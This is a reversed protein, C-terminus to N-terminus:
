WTVICVCLFLAYVVFLIILFKQNLIKICLVISSIVFSNGTQLLNINQICFVYKFYM